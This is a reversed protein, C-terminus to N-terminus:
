VSRSLQAACFASAACGLRWRSSMMDAARTGNNRGPLLASWLWSCSATKAAMARNPVETWVQVEPRPMLLAQVTDGVRAAHAVSRDFGTMAAHEGRDKALHGHVSESVAATPVGVQLGGVSGKLRGSSRWECPRRRRAASSGLRDLPDLAM